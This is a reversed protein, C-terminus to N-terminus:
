STSAQRLSTVGNIVPQQRRQRVRYGRANRQLPCVHPSRKVRFRGVEVELVLVVVV